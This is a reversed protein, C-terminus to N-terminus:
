FTGHQPISQRKQRQNGKDPKNQTGDKRTNEASNLLLIESGRIKTPKELNSMYIMTLHYTSVIEQADHIFPRGIIVNYAAPVKIILFDVMLDRAEINDGIRVPLRISGEPYVTSGLFGIM